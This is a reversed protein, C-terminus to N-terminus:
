HNYKLKIVEKFARDGLPEVTVNEPIPTVAEVCLNQSSM